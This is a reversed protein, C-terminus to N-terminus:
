QGHKLCVSWQDTDQALRIRDEVEYEINKLDMKINYEQKRRPREFSRKWEPKRSVIQSFDLPLRHERRTMLVCSICVSIPL